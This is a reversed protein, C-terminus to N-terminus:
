DSKGEEQRSWNELEVIVREQEAPTLASGCPLSIVRGSIARSNTVSSRPFQSFAPESSLSRWFVRIQIRREELFQILSQARAESDLLACYMWHNSSEAPARPASVFLPLGELAKDYREAIRKKSALIEDFREMQALAIGACVNSMRSNNGPIIYNYNRGHSNDSLLQIRKAYEANNTVVMGGSSATIIKNGNFSFAVLDSLSGLPCDESRTGLAGAADEILVANYKTCLEKIPRMNATQGPPQVTIVAKPYIGERKLRQFSEELDAPDLGWNADGIDALYPIAGVHLVANATASFTWDPIIVYDDRGIGSGSLCLELAMTGSSTAISFQMNLFNAILKEFEEVFVGNTSVWNTELCKDLYSRENGRMNPPCLLIDYMDKM